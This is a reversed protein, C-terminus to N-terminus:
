NFEFKLLIKEFLHLTSGIAGFPWSPATAISQSRTTKAPSKGGNGVDAGIM